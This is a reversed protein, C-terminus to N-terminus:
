HRRPIAPLSRLMPLPARAAAVSLLGVAVLVPLLGLMAAIEIALNM